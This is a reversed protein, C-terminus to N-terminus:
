PVAASGANTAAPPDARKIGCAAWAADSWTELAEIHAALAGPKLLGLHDGGTSPPASSEPVASATGVAAPSATAKWHSLVRGLAGRPDAEMDQEAKALQEDLGDARKREVDAENTKTAITATAIALQGKLDTALVEQERRADQASSLKLALTIVAILTSVGLLAAGGAVAFIEM